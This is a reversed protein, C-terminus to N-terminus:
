KKGTDYHGGGGGRSMNNIMVNHKPMAFDLDPLITSVGNTRKPQQQQQQQNNYSQLHYNFNDTITMSNTPVSNDHTFGNNGSGNTLFSTSHTVYQHKIPQNWSTFNPKSQVHSSIPNQALSPVKPPMSVFMSWDDGDDNLKSPNQPAPATVFDSWDDSDDSSRQQNTVKGPVKCKPFAAEIRNVEAEDFSNIWTSPTNATQSILHAPSLTIPSFAAPTAKKVELIVAPAAQFDDFDDDDERSVGNVQSVTSSSHIVTSPPTDSEILSSVAPASSQATQTAPTLGLDMFTFDEVLEVSTAIGPEPWNIVATGEKPAEAEAKLPQLIATPVLTALPDVITPVAVPVPEASQFDDFDADFEGTITRKKPELSYEIDHYERVFVPAKVQTTDDVQNLPPPQPTPSLDRPVVERSVPSTGKEPTFIHTEPLKITRAVNSNNSWQYFPDSSLDSKISAHAKAETEVAQQVEQDMFSNTSEHSDAPPPTSPQQTPEEHPISPKAPPAGSNYHIIFSFLHTFILIENLADM